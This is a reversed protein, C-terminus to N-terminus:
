HRRLHKATFLDAEIRSKTCICVCISFLICSCILTSISLQFYPSNASMASHHWCSAEEQRRCRRADAAVWIVSYEDLCRQQMSIEYMDICVSSCMSQTQFVGNERCDLSCVVWVLKVELNSNGISEYIPFAWFIDTFHSYYMKKVLVQITYQKPSVCKTVPPM